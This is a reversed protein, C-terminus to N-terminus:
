SQMLADKLQWQGGVPVPKEYIIQTPHFSHAHTRTHTGISHYSPTVTHRHTYTYAPKYTHIRAHMRGVVPTCSVGTGPKSTVVNSLPPNHPSSSPFDVDFILVTGRACVCVSVVSHSESASQKPWIGPPNYQVLGRAFSNNFVRSLLKNNHLSSPNNQTPSFLLLIIKFTIVDCICPQALHMHMNPFVRRM